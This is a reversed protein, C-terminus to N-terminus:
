PHHNPHKRYPSQPVTRTSGQALYIVPLHGGKSCDLRSEERVITRSSMLVIHAEEAESGEEDENGRDNRRRNGILFVIGIVGTGKEFQSSPFRVRAIAIARAREETAELHVHHTRGM